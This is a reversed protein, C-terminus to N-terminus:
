LPRAVLPSLVVNDLFFDDLPRHGGVLDSGTDPTVLARDCATEEDGKAFPPDVAEDAMDAM